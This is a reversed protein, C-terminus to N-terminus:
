REEGVDIPAMSELHEAVLRGIWDNGIPNFHGGFPGDFLQPLPNATVLERALGDRLDLYDVDLASCLRRLNQTVQGYEWIVREIVADAADQESVFGSYLVTSTPLLLVLLEAEISDTVTKVAAVIEGLEGFLPSDDDFPLEVPIPHKMAGYERGGIVVDFYKVRPAEGSELGHARQLWGLRHQLQGYVGVNVADVLIAGLKYGASAVNSNYLVWASPDSLLAPIPADVAEPRVYPERLQLRKSYLLMDQFDNGHFIGLIVLEPRKPVGYRVLAEYAM